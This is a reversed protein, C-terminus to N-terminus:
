LFNTEFIGRDELYKVFLCRLILLHIIKENNENMLDNRLEILNLLLDKDVEEKKRQKQQIFRFFVTSNIYDKSIQKIDDEEFGESNVGYNFSKICISSKLIKKQNPKKKADIIHTNDINVAIFINDNNQNWLKLHYNFIEQESEVFVYKVSPVQPHPSYNYINEYLFRSIEKESYGLSILYKHFKENIMM